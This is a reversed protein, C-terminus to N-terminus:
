PIGQMKKFSYVFNEIFSFSVRKRDNLLYFSLVYV